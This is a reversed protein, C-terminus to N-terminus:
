RVRLYLVVDNAANLTTIDVYLADGQALVSQAGVIATTETGVRNGVTVVLDSAPTTFISTGGSGPNAYGTALRLVNVVLSGGGPATGCVLKAGLITISKPARNEFYVGAQVGAISNLGIAITRQNASYVTLNSVDFQSPSAATSDRATVVKTTGDAAYIYFEGALPSNAGGSDFEEGCMHRGDTAVTTSGATQMNHGGNRLREVLGVKFDRIEDDGNKADDSGAPASNNWVKTIAM